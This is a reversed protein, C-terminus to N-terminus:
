AKALSKAGTNNLSNPADKAAMPRVERSCKGQFRFNRHAGNTSPNSVSRRQIMPRSASRNRAHAPRAMDAIEGSHSPVIVIKNITTATRLAVCSMAM